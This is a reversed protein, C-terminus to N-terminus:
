DVTYTAYNKIVFFQIEVDISTNGTPPNYSLAFTSGKPIIYELKSDDGTTPYVETAAAGTITDGQVGKFATLNITNADGIRRNNVDADVANSVITGGTPNLHVTITGKGTGGTSDGLRLSGLFLSVDRDETSSIYLLASDAANTLTIFGSLVNFTDGNLTSITSVPVSLSHTHLRNAVGVKSRRGTGSGDEIIAM